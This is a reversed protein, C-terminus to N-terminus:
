NGPSSGPDEEQLEKMDWLEGVLSDERTKQGVKNLSLPLPCMCPLPCM